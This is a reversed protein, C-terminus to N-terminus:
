RLLLMTQPSPQILVRPIHARNGVSADDAISKVFEFFQTARVITHAISSQRILNEQAVKACFYGNEPLRDVGVVSLAVHRGVGAAATHTLLNRTQTTFFDVVAADEFSPSNSVDVVVSAGALVDALGEGTLTNVGSSPSAPVANCGRAQLNTVLKSGILGTGGIAVVLM